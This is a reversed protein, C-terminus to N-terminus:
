GLGPLVKGSAIERHYITIEDHEARAHMIARNGEIHVREVAFGAERAMAQLCAANPAWYNTADNNLTTDPYFQMIPVDALGADVAALPVVTGDARLFHDDLVHTELILRDACLRHVADLAGLPDRLHYLLGLMLVLDFTGLKEPTLNFVNEQIFTTASGLVRACLAFGTAEAPYYDVATVQAGRRECEFAFFGDRTGLDLVTKGRLNDPIELLELIRQSDNIGPTVVGPRLEIRHYWPRYAAVASRVEDDTM